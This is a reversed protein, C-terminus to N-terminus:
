KIRLKKFFSILYKVNKSTEIPNDKHNKNERNLWDNFKINTYERKKIANYYDLIGCDNLEIEFGYEKINDDTLDILLENIRFDCKTKEKLFKLQNVTDCVIVEIKDNM